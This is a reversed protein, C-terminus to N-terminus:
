PTLWDLGYGPYIFIDTDGNYPALVEGSAATELARVSTTGVAVVRKGGERAANITDATAETIELHEAHMKHREANRVKIPQFTGLGVHLTLTAFNFGNRKLRELLPETFHLGATPAAIAGESTAYVCQYRNRDAPKPDRKIYPPLPVQGIKALIERFDEKSDFRVIRSGGKALALVQAKLVGEGFEVQTGPVVGKGPKVLVEWIHSGRQEVLLFEVRGGSHSKKGLLRAPIVKTDNLTLLAGAPLFEDIQSFQAHRFEGDSRNVIMLRSTDRRLVPSQAILREPLHYDFDALKM